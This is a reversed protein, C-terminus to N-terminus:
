FVLNLNLLKLWQKLWMKISPKTQGLEEWMEM